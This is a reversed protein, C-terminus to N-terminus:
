FYEVVLYKKQSYPNYLFDCFRQKMHSTKMGLDGKIDYSIVEKSKNLVKDGIMM